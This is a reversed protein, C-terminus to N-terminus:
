RRASTSAPVDNSSASAPPSAAGRAPQRGRQHRGRLRPLRRRRHPRGSLRDGRVSRITSSRRGRAADARSLSRRCQGTGDAAEEFDRGLGLRDRLRRAASANADVWHFPRGSREPRGDDRADTLPDAARIAPRGQDVARQHGRTIKLPSGAGVNREFIEGYNGVHKIIRYAWDNTLGIAEGFKGEHRAPAQDRPQRVEDDRRRQGQHRRAGRRQDARLPDLEVIDVWQDDGHRVAPGLPEKSIIEPLVIHEDPNALSAPARCLPGLRRHHLRRLPRRRLGQVDRGRDRLRRGRVEHQQRPLLRRPQARDHHGAPHLGLRREAGQASAVGLKKRVM